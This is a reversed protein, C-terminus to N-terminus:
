RRVAVWIGFALVALVFASVLTFTWDRELALGLTVVAVRVVPTLMLLLIGWRLPGTAGMVLGIVLMLTSLALGAMLAKEIVDELEELRGSV